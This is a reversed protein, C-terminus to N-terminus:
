KFTNSAKLKERLYFQRVTYNSINEWIDTNNDDDDYIIMIELKILVLATAVIPKLNLLEECYPGFTHLPQNILAPPPPGLM